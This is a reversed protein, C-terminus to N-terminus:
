LTEFRRSYDSWFNADEQGAHLVQSMGPSAKWTPESSGSIDSAFALYTGGRRTWRVSIKRPLVVLAHVVLQRVLHIHLVGFFERFFRLIEFDAFVYM